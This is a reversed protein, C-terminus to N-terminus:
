EIVEYNNSVVEGSSEQTGVLINIPSKTEYEFKGYAKIATITKHPGNFIRLEIEFDCGMHTMYKIFKSPFLKYPEGGSEKTTYNDFVKSKLPDIKKTLQNNQLGRLYINIEDNEVIVGFSNPTGLLSLDKELRKLDDVDLYFKAALTLPDEDRKMPVKRDYEPEFKSSEAIITRYTSYDGSFVFSSYKKGRTSKEETCSISSNQSTPYEIAKVYEMFESFNTIPIEDNDFRCHNDDSNIHVLTQMDMISIMPTENEKFVLLSRKTSTTLSNVVKKAKTLVELYEESFNIDYSM